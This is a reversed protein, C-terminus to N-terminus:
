LRSIELNLELTNKDSSLRSKYTKVIHSLFEKSFEPSCYVGNVPEDFSIRWYPKPFYELNCSVYNKEELENVGIVQGRFRSVHPPTIKRLNEELNSAYAIGVVNVGIRDNESPNLIKDLFKDKVSILIYTGPPDMEVYFKM